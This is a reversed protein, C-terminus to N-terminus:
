TDEETSIGDELSIGGEQSIDEEQTFAEGEEMIRMPFQIKTMLLQLIKMGM